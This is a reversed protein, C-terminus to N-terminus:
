PTKKRSTAPLYKVKLKAKSWLRRVDYDELTKRLADITFDTSLDFNVRGKLKVQKPLINKVDTLLVDGKVDLKILVGNRLDDVLGKM